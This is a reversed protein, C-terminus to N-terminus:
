WKVQIRSTLDKIAANLKAKTQKKANSSIKVVFGEKGKTEMKFFYKDLVVLKFHELPILVEPVYDRDIRTTPYLFDM